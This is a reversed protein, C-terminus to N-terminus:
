SWKEMVAFEDMPKRERADPQSAPYGMPMLEVVRVEEPIGLIEKVQAEHFAGVWCTGLGEEVAALSMSTMCIALDIPYARQGCTMVKDTLVACGVLVAPAQGVFAQDRAAAALKKRTEADAVVVIRWPQANNASPARRGAELVRALKDQEIPKGQYDRISRRKLIAEMVDM